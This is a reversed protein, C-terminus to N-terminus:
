RRGWDSQLDRGLDNKVYYNNAERWEADTISSEVQIRRKTKSAFQNVLMLEHNGLPIAEGYAEGSCVTRDYEETIRHYSRVEGYFAPLTEAPNAQFERNFEYPNM